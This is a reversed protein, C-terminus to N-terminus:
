QEHGVGSMAVKRQKVGLAAAQCKFLATQRGDALTPHFDLLNAQAPHVTWQRGIGPDAWPNRVCM